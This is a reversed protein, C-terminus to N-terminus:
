MRFQFFFLRPATYLLIHISVKKIRKNRLPSDGARPAYGVRKPISGRCVALCCWFCTRLPQRESLCFALVPWLSFFFFGPSLRIISLISSLLPPSRSILPFFHSRCCISSVASAFFVFFFFVSIYLSLFFSLDLFSFSTYLFPKM